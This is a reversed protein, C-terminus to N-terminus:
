PVESECAQSYTLAYNAIFLDDLSWHSDIEHLTATGALVLRWM